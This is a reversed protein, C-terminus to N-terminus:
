EEADGSYDVSDKLHLTEVDDLSQPSVNRLIVTHDDEDPKEWAKGEDSDPVPGHYPFLNHRGVFEEHSPRRFGPPM